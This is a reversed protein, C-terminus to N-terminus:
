DTVEDPDGLVDRYYAMEDQLGRELIADDIKPWNKQVFFKLGFSAQHIEFAVDELLSAPFEGRHAGSKNRRIAIVGDGPKDKGLVHTILDHYDKTWYGHIVTNRKKAAEDLKDILGKFEVKLKGTLVEMGLNNLLKIRNGMMMNSTIHFGKERGVDLLGWIVEEIVQEAYTAEMAISGILALGDEPLVRHSQLFIERRRKSKRKQEDQESKGNNISTM